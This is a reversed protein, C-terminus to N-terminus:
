VNISAEFVLVGTGVISVRRDDGVFGRVVGPRGCEVGQEITVTEGIALREHRHLWATLAGAASGTVPDEGIALGEGCFFRARARTVKGLLADLAVVYVGDARQAGAIKRIQSANPRCKGLVDVNAVPFIAVCLGTSALEAPASPLIAGEDLGVSAAVEESSAEGFWGEKQTMTVRATAGDREIAIPLAGAGCEMMRTLMREDGGARAGLALYTAITAHGCMPVEEGPTFFRVLETCDARTPPFVFATESCNMERAIAQMTREDLGRADPVVGAPNGGFLRDTFADIQLISRAM